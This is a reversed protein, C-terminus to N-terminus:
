EVMVSRLKALKESYEKIQTELFDQREKVREESLRIVKERDLYSQVIQKCNEAVTDADVKAKNAFAISAKLEEQLKETAKKSELEKQEQQKVRAQTTQEFNRKDNELSKRLSDLESAKGVTEIVKNLREQEEKLTKLAKEYKSPNKVLDLFDSIDQINM